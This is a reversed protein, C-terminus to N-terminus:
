DLSTQLQKVICTRKTTCYPCDMCDTYTLCDHVFTNKFILWNKNICSGTLFTSFLKNNTYKVNNGQCYLALFVIKSKM